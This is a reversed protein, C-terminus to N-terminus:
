AAYAWWRRYSYIADLGWLPELYPQLRWRRWLQTREATFGGGVVLKRIKVEAVM